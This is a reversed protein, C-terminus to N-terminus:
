SISASSRDRTWSQKNGQRWNRDGDGGSPRCIRGAFTGSRVYRGSGARKSDLGARPSFRTQMHRRGWSQMPGSSPAPSSSRTPSMGMVLMAISGTWFPRLARSAQIAIASTAGAVGRARDPELDHPNSDASHTPWPWTTGCPGGDRTWLGVRRNPRQGCAPRLDANLDVGRM